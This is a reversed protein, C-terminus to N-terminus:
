GIFCLIVISALAILWTLLSILWYIICTLLSVLLGLILKTFIFYLIVLVLMVLLSAFAVIWTFVTILANQCFLILTSINIFLIEIM